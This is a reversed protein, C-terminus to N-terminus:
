KADPINSLTSLILGENIQHIIEPVTAKGTRKINKRIVSEKSLDFRPKVIRNIVGRGLALIDFEPHVNELPIGRAVTRKQYPDYFVENHKNKEMFDAYERQRRLRNNVNQSMMIYDEGYIDKTTRTNDSPQIDSFRKITPM